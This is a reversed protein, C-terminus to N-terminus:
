GEEQSRLYPYEGELLRSRWASIEAELWAAVRSVEDRGIKVGSLGQTIAKRHERRSATKNLRRMKGQTV